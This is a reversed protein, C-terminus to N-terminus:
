FGFEQCVDEALELVKDEATERDEYSQISGVRVMKWDHDGESEKETKKRFVEIGWLGNLPQYKVFARVGRKDYEYFKDSNM